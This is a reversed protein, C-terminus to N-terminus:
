RTDHRQQLIARIRDLPMLGIEGTSLLTMCKNPDHVANPEFVLLTPVDSDMRKPPLYIYEGGNPDPCRFLRSDGAWYILDAKSEPYHGESTAALQLGQWISRMNTACKLQLASDQANVMAQGYEQGAKGATKMIWMLGYALAGLVLVIFIIDIARGSRCHSLTRHKM